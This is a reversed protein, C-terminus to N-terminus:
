ASSKQLAAITFASWISAPVWGVLSLQLAVCLAGESWRKEDFFPQYPTFIAVLVATSPGLEAYKNTAM